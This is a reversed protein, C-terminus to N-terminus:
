DRRREAVLALFAISLSLLGALLAAGSLRSPESALLYAGLGVAFIVVATGAALVKVM